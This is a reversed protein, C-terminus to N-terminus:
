PAAHGEPFIREGEIAHDDAIAVGAAVVSRGSIRARAGVKAHRGIVSDSVIADEGIVAGEHVVSREVTAGDGIVADDGLVTAGGSVHMNAALYSEPTGIDNWYGTCRWAFLGNGVLKPFVEREINVREMYPVMEAFSKDLVYAGANIWYPPEVAVTTGPEPKEVFATVQGDADTLVLGYRSPDAVETLTVTGRAGHGRHFAMLEGLPAEMMVDGNLAFFEDSDLRGEIAFRIAGATDMPEPEVAYELAMGDHTDGFGAVIPDPLYGCSFIVRTVGAAALRELMHALFPRGGIPLMAKPRDLTLPRLRTGEGGVLIVAIV